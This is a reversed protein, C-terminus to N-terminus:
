HYISRVLNNGKEKGKGYEWKRKGEKCSEKMRVKGCEFIAKQWSLDVVFILCIQSKYRKGKLHVFFLLLFCEVWNRHIHNKHVIKMASRLSLSPLRDYIASSLSFFATNHFTISDDSTLFPGLCKKARKMRLILNLNFSFQIYSPFIQKPWIISLSKKQISSTFIFFFVKKM